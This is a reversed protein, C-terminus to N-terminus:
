HQDKKYNEYQTEQEEYEECGENFSQSRGNCNGGHEEACEYGAYHGTGPSYPNEPEPCTRAEKTATKPEDSSGSDCSALLFIYASTLVEILSFRRIRSMDNCRKDFLLVIYCPCRLPSRRYGRKDLVLQVLLHYVRNFATKRSFRRGKTYIANQLKTPLRRAASV